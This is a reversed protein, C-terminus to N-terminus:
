AITWVKIEHCHTRPAAAKVRAQVGPAAWKPAILGARCARAPVSGWAKHSEPQNRAQARFQEITVEHIGMAKQTILWGALEVLVAEAWPGSLDLALQVGERKLREGEKPNLTVATM